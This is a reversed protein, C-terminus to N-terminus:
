QHHISSVCKKPVTRGRVWGEPQTSEPLFKNDIGNTYWKLNNEKAASRGFMPNKNGTIDAHNESLHKRHQDSKPRGKLAASVKEGHGTPKPKGSLAESIQERHRKSPSWNLKKRSESVRERSRIDKMPNNETMRISQHISHQEKLSQYVRSTINFSRTNTKNMRMSWFAFTMEKNSYAKWLMWHALFHERPSLKILNDISNDGGLSRPLIHHTETIGEYIRKKRSEIFKIYRTSYHINKIM